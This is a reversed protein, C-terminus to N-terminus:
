ILSWPMVTSSARLCVIKGEAWLQSLVLGTEITKGLGVEDALLVGGDLPNRFAFIAADVQHPNLDVKAQIVAQGIAEDQSKPRRATLIHWYYLRQLESLKRFNASM